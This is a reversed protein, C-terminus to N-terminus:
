DPEVCNAKRLFYTGHHTATPMTERVVERLMERLEERSIGSSNVSELLPNDVGDTATIDELQPNSGICKLTELLDHRTEECDM